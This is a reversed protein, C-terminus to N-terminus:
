SVAPEKAKPASSYFIRFRDMDPAPALPLLPQGLFNLVRSPSATRVSPPLPM